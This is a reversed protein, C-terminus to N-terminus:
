ASKDTKKAKKAKKGLPKKSARQKNKSKKVKPKKKITKVSTIAEPEIGTNAEADPSPLVPGIEDSLNALDAEIAEDSVEDDRWDDHSLHDTKQKLEHLSDHLEDYGIAHSISDKSDTIDQKVEDIALEREVEHRINAVGHKFQRFYQVATRIVSPLKEPGVVILAVVGILLLETFGIDFM